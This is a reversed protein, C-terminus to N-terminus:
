YHVFTMGRTIDPYAVCESYKGILQENRAEIVASGVNACANESCPCDDMIVLHQHTNAMMRMNRLDTLVFDQMHSGDIVIVDCVFSEKIGKKQQRFFPVSKRSDGWVIEFRNPYLSKIFDSMSKTYEYANIDFSVLKTKNSGILWFLASHGANFGIECVQKVWSQSSLFVYLAKQGPFLGAHGDPSRRYVSKLHKELKDLHEALRLSKQLEIMEMTVLKTCNDGIFKLLRMVGDFTNNMNSNSNPNLLRIENDIKKDNSVLLHSSERTMAPVVM